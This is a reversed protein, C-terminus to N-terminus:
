KKFLGFLASGSGSMAAYVAGERYLEEKVSALLPYKVFVTTEFDNKVCDRWQEVPLRLADKLRLEPVAPVLSSYADKTSVCIGSPVKVRVEYDDLAPLPFDELLEGRGAAFMPRDYVFFACDSGLESAYISLMEDPLFLDFMESIMRLAFAADASGGGLGAGVPSGKQLRIAVPPIDFDARLLKYARVTLDKEPDWPAAGGFDIDISFKPAQVIELTDAYGHYPVFFTEIDHYGDPRKRLVDLGINIKVGPRTM